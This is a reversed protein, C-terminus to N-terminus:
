KQSKPVNEERGSDKKDSKAKARNNKILMSVDDAEGQMEMLDNKDSESFSAMLRQIIEPTDPKNM